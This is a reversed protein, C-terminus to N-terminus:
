EGVYNNAVTTNVLSLTGTSVIGGGGGQTGSSTNNAVTSDLLTLTGFNYLGGGGVSFGSAKNGVISCATVTLTGFNGIGGGGIATSSGNAITLDSLAATVSFNVDLVATLNNGSITLM